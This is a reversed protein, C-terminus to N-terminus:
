GRVRHRRIRVWVGGWYTLYYGLVVAGAAMSGALGSAALWSESGPTTQWANWARWFGFFIRATVVVTIALVLWRNPTYHLAGPAGEWHSLALGLFGLAGGALLGIVSYTFAGPVWASSIGAVMLFIGASLVLSFVNFASVWGRAQRRATGARYRNRISFPLSLVIILPFILMAFAAFILPVAPPYRFRGHLSLAEVANTRGPM